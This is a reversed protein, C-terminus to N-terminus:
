TNDSLSFEPGLNTPRRVGKHLTKITLDPPNLPAPEATLKSTIEAEKGANPNFYAKGLDRVGPAKAEPANAITKEFTEYTWNNDAIHTKWHDIEWQEIGVGAESSNYDRGWYRQYIQRIDNDTVIRAGEPTYEAKPVEGAIVNIFQPSGPQKLQNYNGAERAEYLKTSLSRDDQPNLYTPINTKPDFHRTQNHKRFDAIAQIEDDSYTMAHTKTWAEDWDYDPERLIEEARAIQRPTTFPTRLDKFGMREVTSRYALNENYHAYDIEYGAGLLARYRDWDDTYKDTDELGESGWDREYQIGWDDHLERGGGVHYGARAYHRLIQARQEPSLDTEWAKQEYDEKTGSFGFLDKLTQGAQLDGSQILTELIKEDSTEDDNIGWTAAAAPAVWKGNKYPM